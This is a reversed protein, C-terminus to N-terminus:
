HAQRWSPPRLRAAPSPPSSALRPLPSLPPQVFILLYGFAAWAVMGFIWFLGMRMARALSWFLLAPGVLLLGYILLRLPDFPDAIDEVPRQAVLVALVAALAASMTISVRDASTLSRPAVRMSSLVESAEM